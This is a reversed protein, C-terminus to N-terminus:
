GTEPSAFPRRKVRGALVIAADEDKGAEGEFPADFVAAFVPAAV